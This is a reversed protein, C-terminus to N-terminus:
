RNENKILEAYQAMEGERLNLGMWSLIIGAIKIKDHEEFDLETSNTTSYVINDNSDLTYAYVPSEAIRLYSLFITKITKPRVIIHSGVLKAIPNKMTPMEISSTIRTDYEADTVLDITKFILPNKNIKYKIVTGSTYLFDSPLTGQGNIIQIVNSDVKFRRISNTIRQNIEYDQLLKHQYETSARQLLNTYEAPSVVNGSQNKNIIFNVYNLLEQLNM